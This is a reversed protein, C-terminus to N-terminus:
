FASRRGPSFDKVVNVKRPLPTTEYYGPVRPELAHGEALTVHFQKQFDGVARPVHRRFISPKRWALLLNPHSFLKHASSLARIVDEEPLEVPQQGFRVLPFSLWMLNLVLKAVIESFGPHSDEIYKLFRFASRTFVDCHECINTQLKANQTINSEHIFIM